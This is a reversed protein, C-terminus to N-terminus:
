PLDEHCCVLESSGRDVTEESRAEAPDSEGTNRRATRKRPIAMRRRWTAIYAGAVKQRVVSLRNYEATVCVPEEVRVTM